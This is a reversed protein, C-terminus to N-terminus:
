GPLNLASLVQRWPHLPWWHGQGATAKSRLTHSHAEGPLDQLLARLAPWHAPFRAWPGMGHAALHRGGCDGSWQGKRWGQCCAPVDRLVKARREGLIPWPLCGRKHKSAAQAGAFPGPRFAAPRVRAESPGSPPCLQDAVRSAAKNEASVCFQM